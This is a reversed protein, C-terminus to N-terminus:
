WQRVNRKFQPTISQAQTESYLTSGNNIIPAAGTIVINGDRIDKLMQFITKSDLLRRVTQLADKASAQKVEMIGRIREAVMAISIMKLLLFGESTIEIPLTYRNSVYSNILAESQQIFSTIDGTSIATDKTVTLNKFEAIVEKETCYM